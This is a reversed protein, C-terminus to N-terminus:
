VWIEGEGVQEVKRGKTPVAVGGGAHITAGCLAIATATIGVKARVLIDVELRKPAPRSRRM